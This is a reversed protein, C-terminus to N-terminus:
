LDGGSQGLTVLADRVVPQDIVVPFIGGFDGCAVFLGIGSVVRLALVDDAVLRSRKLLRRLRQVLPLGRRLADILRQGFERPHSTTYRIREIGPIDHLYDLLLANEAVAEERWRGNIWLGLIRKM